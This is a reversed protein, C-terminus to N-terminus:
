LDLRVNGYMCLCCRFILRNGKGQLGITDCTLIPQGKASNCQWPVRARETADFRM